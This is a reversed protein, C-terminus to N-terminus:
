ENFNIVIIPLDLKKDQKQHIGNCVLLLVADM